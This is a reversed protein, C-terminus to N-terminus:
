SVKASMGSLAEAFANVVGSLQRRQAETVQAYNVYGTHEYGPQAQYKILVRQVADNRQQIESVLGPDVTQLYPGLLDAVKLSAKMNAEFDVLDIHSYREEEGTIKNEAAENILDTAGAAMEQPSYKAKSVLNVLSEEHDILGQCLAKAGTMSPEDWLIQELRHFGMFESKKTVPNQWRGDIQTDLDGFVEAVPEIQEYFVRAPGYRQQALDRNGANVAFCFASTSRLLSRTSFDVFATYSSVAKVLEPKSQWAPATAKGTVVFDWTQAAAGPCQVKYRGPQLAASFSGSLGPTLNEKEGFIHALDSSKLEAETVAAASDNQISFEVPGAAVSAPKPQCGEATLTISVKAPQGSGGNSVPTAGTSPSAPASSGGGSGSDGSGSTGAGGSSGCAGLVLAAALAPATATLWRRPTM